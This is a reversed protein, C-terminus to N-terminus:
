NARTILYYSKFNEVNIEKDIHYTCIGEKFLGCTPNPYYVRFNSASYLYKFNKYEFTRSSTFRNPYEKIENFNKFVSSIIIIVIFINILKYYRILVKEHFSIALVFVFSSLSILVGLVYRFEPAKSWLLIFFPILILMTINIEKNLNIKKKFIFSILAIYALSITTIFLVIKFFASKLFYNKILPLVWQYSKLYYIENQFNIPNNKSRVYSTVNIDIYNNITTSGLSWYTNICLPKTLSILCGSNLYSHLIWFIVFASCTLLSNLYLRYFKKYVILISFGLIASIIYSLKVTVCLTLILFFYIFSYKNSNEFIKLFYYFCLIFLVMGVTDVEPSGLHNLIPGNLAPHILSFLLIFFVCSILFKNSLKKFDLKNFCFVENVLFILPVINLLYITNTEKFEFYFLGLLFHWTSNMAFRTEINSLGLIVKHENYWNIIQLHYTHSDTALPNITIILNFFIILVILKSISFNFKLKKFNFIFLFVGILFIPMTFYKLPAILNLIIAVITILFLGIFIDLNYLTRHNNNALLIKKGLISYGSISLIIILTLFINTM